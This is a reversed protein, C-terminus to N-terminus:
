GRVTVKYLLSTGGPNLENVYVINWPKDNLLILGGQEPVMTLAAAPILMNQIGMQIIEPTVLSDEILRESIGTKLCPIDYEAEFEVTVSSATAHTTATSLIVSRESITLVATTGSTTVDCLLYEDDIKVICTSPMTGTVSALTASLGDISLSSALVGGAVTFGDTAPDYSGRESKNCVTCVSGFEALLTEVTQAIPSYDM